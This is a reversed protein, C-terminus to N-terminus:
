NSKNISSSVLSSEARIREAAIVDDDVQTGQDSGRGTEAKEINLPLIKVCDDDDTDFEDDADEGTDHDIQSNDPDMSDQEAVGKNLAQLADISNQLRRMKAEKGAKKQHFSQKGFQSASDEIELNEIAKEEVM